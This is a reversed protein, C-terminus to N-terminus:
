THANGRLTCLPSHGSAGDGALKCYAAYPQALLIVKVLSPQPKTRPFQPRKFDYWDRYRAIDREVGATCAFLNQHSTCNPGRACSSFLVKSNHVDWKKPAQTTVLYLIDGNKNIKFIYKLFNFNKISTDLKITKSLDLISNRLKIALSHIVTFISSKNQTNCTITEILGDIM